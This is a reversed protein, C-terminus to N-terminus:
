RTVCSVSPGISNCTTISPQQNFAQLTRMTASMQAAAAQQSAANAIQQARSYEGAVQQVRSLIQYTNIRYQGYTIQSDALLKMQNVSALRAERFLGAVSDNTTRSIINMGERACFATQQDFEFIAERESPTPRAANSIETLTPPNEVETPSLPVKGRLVEFRPDNSFDCRKRLDAIQAQACAAVCLAALPTLRKFALGFAMAIMKFRM